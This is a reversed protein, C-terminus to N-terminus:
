TFVECTKECRWENYQEDNFHAVARVDYLLQELYLVSSLLSPAVRVLSRAYEDNLQGDEMWVPHNRLAITSEDEGVEEEIYAKAAEAASEHMDEYIEGFSLEEMSGPYSFVQSHQLSPVLSLGVCPVWSLQADSTPHEDDAEEYDFTATMTSIEKMHEGIYYNDV